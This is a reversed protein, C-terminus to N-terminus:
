AALDFDSNEFHRKLKREANKRIAFLHGRSYGLKKAIGLMPNEEIHSELVVAREVDSLMAVAARCMKRLEDQYAIREPCSSKNEDVHSAELDIVEQAHESEHASLAHKQAEANAASRASEQMSRVIEGKIFYYLYTTFCANPRPEYRSAAECLALDAASVIEDQDITSGFGRLIGYAMRHAKERNDLILAEYNAGEKTANGKTGKKNGKRPLTSM